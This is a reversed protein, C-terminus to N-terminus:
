KKIIVREAILSANVAVLAIVIASFFFKSWVNNYSNLHIHKELYKRVVRFYNIVSIVLTCMGLALLIFATVKNYLKSNFRSDDEPKDDSSHLRFGLIM